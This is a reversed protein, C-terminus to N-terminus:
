KKPLDLIDQGFDKIKAREKKWNVEAVKVEDYFRLSEKLEDQGVQADERIEAFTHWESDKLSRLIEDLFKM